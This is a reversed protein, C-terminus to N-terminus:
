NFLYSRFGNSVEIGTEHIVFTHHMYVDYYALTIKDAEVIMRVPEDIKMREIDRAIRAAM